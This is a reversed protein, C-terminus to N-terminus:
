RSPPAIQQDNAHAVHKWTVEDAIREVLKRKYQAMLMESAPESPMKTNLYYHGGNTLQSGTAVDYATAEVTAQGQYMLKGTGPEYLTMSELTLDLLYDAGLQKGLEIASLARWQPNSAKLRDIKAQEVVRIPCKGDKTQEFMRRGIDAALERDVAAFEWSQNQTTVLVAVTIDKKGEKPPLPVEAPTKSDGRFLFYMSAIPDCGVSLTTVVAALVAIRLRRSM